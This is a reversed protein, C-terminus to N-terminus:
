YKSRRSLMVIKCVLQSMPVYMHNRNDDLIVFSEITEGVWDDLWQKAEHAKNSIREEGHSWLGNYGSIYHSPTKDIIDGKIGESRLFDIMYEFELDTYCTLRWTSSIVIKARTVDTIENLREICEKDLRDWGMRFPMHFDEPFPLKPEDVSKHTCLVGDIDLFVIKIM